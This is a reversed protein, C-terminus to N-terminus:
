FISQTSHVQSGSSARWQKKIFDLKEKQWKIIKNKM